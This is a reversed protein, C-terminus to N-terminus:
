DRQKDNSCPRWGELSLINEIRPSILGENGMCYYGLYGEGYVTISDVLSSAARWSCSYIIKGDTWEQNCLARYLELALLKDDRFIAGIRQIM